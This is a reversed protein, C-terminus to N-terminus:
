KDKKRINDIDEETIDRDIPVDIPPWKSMPCEADLLKTKANMICGCKKCQHTLKIFYECGKCVDMRLKAIEPLAREMNKNFIDWPKVDKKESM